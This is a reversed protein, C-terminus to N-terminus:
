PLPMYEFAGADPVGSRPQNDFDFPPWFDVSGADIAPSDDTLHYDGNESDVFGSNEPLEPEIVVNGYQYLREGWIESVVAYGNNWCCLNNIIKVTGLHDNGMVFVGVLNDVITNNVIEINRLPHMESNLGWSSVVISVWESGSVINNFIQVDELLGGCQAAVAIGSAFCLNTINNYVKLNYSHTDWSDVFIGPRNTDHVNNGYVLGTNSQRVEIGEGGNTGPGSDHVHNNRVIFSACAAVCICGREGDNCALVIENNDVVSNTCSQIRIGSSVTNNTYNDRVYVYEGGSVCIGTDPSNIVRFGSIVIRSCGGTNLLGTTGAPLDVGTGDIIVDDGPWAALIVPNGDTGSNAITVYETYTGDKIWARQGPGLSEAAKQITAWPDAETGIGSDDGGIAVYFDAGTFAAQPDDIDFIDDYPLPVADAQSGYPDCSLSLMVCISVALITFVTRHESDDKRKCLM